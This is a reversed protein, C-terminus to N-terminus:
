KTQVITYPVLVKTAEYAEPWASKLAERDIKTTTRHAIRVREVGDIVGVDAGSLLDRIQAEVEEKVKELLKLSAKTDNFEKLLAEVGRDLTAVTETSSIKTTTTTQVTKTM